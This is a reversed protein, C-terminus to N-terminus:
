DLVVEDTDRLVKLFLYATGACLGTACICLGTLSAVLYITWKLV